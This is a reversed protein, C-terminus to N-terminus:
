VLKLEAIAKNSNMKILWIRDIWVQTRKFISINTLILILCIIWNDAPLSFALNNANNHFVVKFPTTAWPTFSCKLILRPIIGHQKVCCVIKSLSMHKKGEIEKVHFMNTQHLKRLGQFFNVSWCWGWHHSASAVIYKKCMTQNVYIYIQETNRAPKILNGCGVQTFTCPLLLLTFLVWPVSTTRMTPACWDMLSVSILINACSM